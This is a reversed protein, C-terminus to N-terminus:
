SEHLILVSKRKGYEAANLHPQCSSPSSRFMKGVLELLNLSVINAIIFMYASFYKIDLMIISYRRQHNPVLFSGTDVFVIQRPTAADGPISGHAPVVM